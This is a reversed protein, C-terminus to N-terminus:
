QVTLLITSKIFYHVKQYYYIGYLPNNEFSNLKQIIRLPPRRRFNLEEFLIFGVILEFQM